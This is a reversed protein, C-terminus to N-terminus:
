SKEFGSKVKDPPEGSKKKSYSVLYAIFKDTVYPMTLAM